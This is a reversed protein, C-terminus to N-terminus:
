NKKGHTGSCGFGECVSEEGFWCGSILGILKKALCTHKNSLHGESVIGANKCTQCSISGPKVDENIDSDFSDHM